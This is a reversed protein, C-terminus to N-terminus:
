GLSSFSLAQGEGSPGQPPNPLLLNEWLFFMLWDGSSSYSTDSYYVGAM